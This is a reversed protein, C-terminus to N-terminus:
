ESVSEELGSLYEHLFEPSKDGLVEVYFEAASRSVRATAQVHYHVDVCFTNTEGRRAKRVVQKLAEVFGKYGGDYGQIVAGIERGQRRDLKLGPARKRGM